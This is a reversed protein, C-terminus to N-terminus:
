MTTSATTYMALLLAGGGFSRASAHLASPIHNNTGHAWQTSV